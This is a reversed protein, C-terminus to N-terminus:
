MKRFKLAINQDINTRINIIYVGAYLSNICSNILSEDFSGVYLQRYLVDFIIAEKVSSKNYEEFLENLSKISENQISVDNIISNSASDVFIRWLQAGDYLNPGGFYEYDGFGYVVPNAGNNNIDGFGDENSQYFNTGDDSYWVPSGKSINDNTYGTLWVKNFSTRLSRLEIVSDAKGFANLTISDWKIGDDSKWLQGGDIGNTTTIYFSGNFDVMSSLVYNNSEGFGYYVYPNMQFNKGDTSEWLQAWGDTGFYIKNNWVYFYSITTVNSDINKFDVLKEWALSDTTNYPARWVQGPTNGGHSFMGAYLYPITDNTGQFVCLHPSVGILNKNGFGRKTIALWNVGDTTRYILGGKDPNGAGLWFIGSDLDTKGFSPFGSSELSPSFNNMQEWSGIEGSVSRWLEANQKCSNVMTSAYLYNSFEEFEIIGVNCNNGFGDTIVAEWNNTQANTNFYFYFSIIFNLFKLHGKRVM